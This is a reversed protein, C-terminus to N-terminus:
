IGPRCIECGGCKGMCCRDWEDFDLCSHGYEERAIDADYAAAICTLHQRRQPSGALTTPEYGEPCETHWIPLPDHRGQLPIPWPTRANFESVPKLLEALWRQEETFPDPSANPLSEKPSNLHQAPPYSDHILSLDKPHGTHPHNQDKDLPPYVTGKDEERGSLNPTISAERINGVGVNAVIKEVGGERGGQFGRGIEPGASASQDDGEILHVDRSGVSGDEDLNQARQTGNQLDRCFDELSQGLEHPTLTNHPFGPNSCTSSFRLPPPFFGARPATPTSRTNPNAPTQPTSYSTQRKKPTPKESKPM